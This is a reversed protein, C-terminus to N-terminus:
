RIFVEGQFSSQHTGAGKIEMKYNTTPNGTIERVITTNANSMTDSFLPRSDYIGGGTTDISNYINVVVGSPDGTIKKMNVQFVVNNWRNPIQVYYLKTGSNNVTDVSTKYPNSGTTFSGGASILKVQAEAKPIFCTLGLLVAILLIKKM